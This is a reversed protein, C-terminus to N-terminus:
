VNERQYVVFFATDRELQDPRFERSSFSVLLQSCGLLDPAKRVTVTAFCCRSAVALGILESRFKRMGYAISLRKLAVLM